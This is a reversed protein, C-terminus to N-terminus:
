GTAVRVFKGNRFNIARIKQKDSNENLIRVHDVKLVQTIRKDNEKPANYTNWKDAALVM